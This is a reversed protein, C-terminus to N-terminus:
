EALRTNMALLWRHLPLLREFEGACLDILSESYFEEPVPLERGAHLGGYKLLEGRPHDKDYGRPVRKYKKGGLWYGAAALAEEIKELEAGHVEHDVSHRYAEMQPKDFMYLGVGFMLTPPALHFYFGPCAMKKDAGEWLFIGLNTKYPTKDKSFRTDRYIRFISGDIRPDGIIGPSLEQLRSALAIVFSRAPAIVAADFEAKRAKFWLKDNNAKLENFFTITEPPFGTFPTITSM